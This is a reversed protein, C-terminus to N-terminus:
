ASRHIQMVRVAVSSGAIREGISSTKHQRLCPHLPPQVIGTLLTTQPKQSLWASDVKLGKLYSRMISAGMHINIDM